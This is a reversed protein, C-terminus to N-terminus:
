SKVESVIFGKLCKTTSRSDRQRCLVSFRPCVNMGRTPNSDVFKKESKNINPKNRHIKHLDGNQIGTNSHDLFTCAKSRIAV